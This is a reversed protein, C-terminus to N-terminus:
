STLLSQIRELGAASVQEMLEKTVSASMILAVLGALVGLPLGLAFLNLSPATRSLIGAAFQTALLIMTAPLSILLALRFMMQACDAIAAFREPGLWTAGPPFAHYSKIILEFFILHGGLALFILTLLITFYQAFVPSYSGSNPDVAGAISMGMGAGIIEAAIVPAAFALQLIFGLTLGILAEGAVAVISALSFSLPPIIMPFWGCVLVAISGTLIIRVQYPVNIAGFLPAAALAAGIRVMAFLLQWLLTEIPGFGFDIGIM